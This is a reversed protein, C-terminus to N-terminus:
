KKIYYKIEFNDNIFVSSMSNNLKFRIFLSVSSGVFSNNLKNNEFNVRSEDFEVYRAEM